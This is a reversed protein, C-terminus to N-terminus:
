VAVWGGEAVIQRYTEIAQGTAAFTEAALVPTNSRSVSLRPDADYRQAWEAQEGFPPDGPGAAAVAAHYLGFATAVVAAAARGIPHFHRCPLRLLDKKTGLGLAEVELVKGISM